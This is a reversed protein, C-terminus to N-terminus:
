SRVEGASSSRVGSAAGDRAQYRWVRLSKPSRAPHDAGYRAWAATRGPPHGADERVRGWGDFRYLDGRHHANQSYSVAAQVSWDPWRPGFVERWVRLMIRTAWAQGPASCLRALEVVETRPLRRGRLVQGDPASRDPEVQATASVSSASMAVSVAEGDV